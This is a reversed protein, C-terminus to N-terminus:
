VLLVLNLEISDVLNHHRLRATQAWAFGHRTSVGCAVLMILIDVLTLRLSTVALGVHHDIRIPAFVHGLVLGSVTFIEWCCSSQRLAPVYHLLLWSRRGLVLSAASRVGPTVNVVASDVHWWLLRLLALLWSSHHRARDSARAVDSLDMLCKLELWIQLVYIGWTLGRSPIRGWFSSVWILLVIVVWSRSVINMRRYTVCVRNPTRNALFNESATPSVSRAIWTPTLFGCRRSWRPNCTRANLWLHHQEVRVACGDITIRLRWRHFSVFQRLRVIGAICSGAGLLHVIVQSVWGFWAVMTVLRACSQRLLKVCDTCSRVSFLSWFISQEVVIIVIDKGFRCRTIASGLSALLAEANTLKGAITAQASPTIRHALPVVWLVRKAVIIFLIDCSAHGRARTLNSIVHFLCNVTLIFISYDLMSLSGPRCVFAFAAVHFLLLM